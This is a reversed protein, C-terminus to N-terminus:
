LRELEERLRQLVEPPLNEEENKAYVTLMWIEEATNRWYYIIRLGGRKGRNTAKWRLKRVGGSGPIVNGTEPHLALSWQLALYETDDLYEHILRSFIPAEIFIVAPTYPM